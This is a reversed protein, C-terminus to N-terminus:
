RNDLWWQYASVFPGAYPHLKAGLYTTSGAVVVDALDAGGNVMNRATWITGAVGLVTSTTAAIGACPAFGAYTCYAAVTAAGTSGADLAQTTCDNHVCDPHSSQYHHGGGGRYGYFANHGPTGAGMLALQAFSAEGLPDAVQSALTVQDPTGTFFQMNVNNVMIQNGNMAFQGTIHAGGGGYLVLADVADGAEGQHLVDLWGWMGAHSGGDQFHAEICDWDKCGFHGMIEDDSFHGTPDTYRMPNGRTYMYRNYDFLNGPDPVLTDPSLFQGLDPDYYRANYYQLGTGDRKQGTFRHDTVGIGGYRTRGYAYYREHSVVANGQNTTLVTSGLHDSHLYSM